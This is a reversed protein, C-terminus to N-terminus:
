PDPIDKKNDNEEDDENEESDENEEGDYGQGGYRLDASPELVATEGLEARLKESQGQLLAALENLMADTEQWAKATQDFANWLNESRQRMDTSM